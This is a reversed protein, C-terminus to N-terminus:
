DNKKTLAIQKAFFIILYNTVKKIKKAYEDMNLSLPIYINDIYQEIIEYMPDINLVNTTMVYYFVQKTLTYIMDLPIFIMIYDLFQFMIVVSIFILLKKLSSLIDKVKQEDDIKFNKIQNTIQQVLYTVCICCGIYNILSGM